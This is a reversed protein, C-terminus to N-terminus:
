FAYLVFHCAYLKVANTYFNLLRKRWHLCNNKMLQLSPQFAYILTTANAKKGAVKKDGLFAEAVELTGGHVQPSVSGQLM